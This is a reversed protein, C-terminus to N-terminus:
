KSKIIRLKIHDTPYASWSYRMQQTMPLGLAFLQGCPRASAAAM